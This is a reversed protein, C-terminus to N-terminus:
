RRVRSLGVVIEKERDDEDRMTFTVSDRGIAKVWGDRLATGRRALYTRRSPAGLLASATESSTLVGHVTVEAIRLGDLGEAPAAVATEAGADQFPDRGASRLSGSEGVSSSRSRNPAVPRESATFARFSVELVLLGAAANAARRVTFSEIRLAPELEAAAAFFSRVNRFTGTAMLTCSWEAFPPLARAPNPALRGIRIGSRAALANIRGITETPSEVLLVAQELVKARSELGAVSARANRAREAAAEQSAAEANVAAIRESHLQLDNPSVNSARSVALWTAVAVVFVAAAGTAPPRRRTPPRNDM